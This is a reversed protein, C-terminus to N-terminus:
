RETTPLGYGGIAPLQLRHCGQRRCSPLSGIGMLEANYRKQNSANVRLAQRVERNRFTGKGEKELWSKLREFYNRCAGSLEDSKRLLTEKLLANAAEIDDLTTEIFLEGTEKEVQQERQHQHYFTIM